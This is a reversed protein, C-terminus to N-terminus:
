IPDDGDIKKINIKIYIRFRDYIPLGKVETDLLLTGHLPM